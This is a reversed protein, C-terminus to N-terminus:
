QSVDACALLFFSSNFSSNHFTHLVNVNEPQAMHKYITLM